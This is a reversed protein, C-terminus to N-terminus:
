KQPEYLRNESIVLGLKIILDKSFQFAKVATEPKDCGILDDIYNTLFYSKNHLICRLSDTVRQMCVSGHIYGFPVATDVYYNGEFQLGTKNIDRPDLKLHRFARQLNIKYLLCNGNLYTIRDTINDVWHVWTNTTVLRTM